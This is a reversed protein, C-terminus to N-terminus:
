VKITVACTIRYPRWLWLLHFLVQPSFKWGKGLVPESGKRMSRRTLLEGILTRGTVIECHRVDLGRLMSRLRSASPRFMTDIPDAHRPFSYPVTLFLVGGVPLLGLLRQVAADPDQVHELLSGCLISRPKLAGLREYDEDDFINAVVDVGDASKLDVHHVNCGRKALPAFILEDIYPQEVTRFKHTSSGIDLMPSLQAADMESLREGIWIVEEKLM